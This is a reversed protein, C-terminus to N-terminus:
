PRETPPFLTAVDGEFDKRISALASEAADIDLVHMLMERRALDIDIVTSGPALSVLGGLLAAGTESMPAVRARIVGAQPRNRQLVIRASAFGASFCHGVFRILLRFPAIVRRSM